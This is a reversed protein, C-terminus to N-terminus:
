KSGQYSAPYYVICIESGGWSWSTNIRQRDVGTAHMADQSSSPSMGPCGQGGTTGHCWNWCRGDDLTDQSPPEMIHMCWTMISNPTTWSMFGVETCSLVKQTCGSMPTSNGWM